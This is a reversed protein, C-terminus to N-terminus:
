ILHHVKTLTHCAMHAATQSLDIHKQTHQHAAAGAGGVGVAGHLGLHQDGLHFLAAVGLGKGSGDGCSGGGCCGDNRGSNVKDNETKDCLGRQATGEGGAINGTDQHTGCHHDSHGNNGLLAIVGLGAILHRGGLLYELLSEYGEPAQEEGEADNETHTETQESGRLATGNCNEVAEDNATQDVLLQAQFLM